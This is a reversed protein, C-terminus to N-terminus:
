LRQCSQRTCVHLEDSSHETWDIHTYILDTTRLTSPDWLVKRGVLGAWGQLLGGLAIYLLGMDTQWPCVWLIGLVRFGLSPCVWLINM